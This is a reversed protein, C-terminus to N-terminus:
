TQGKSGKGSEDKRSKEPPPAKLSISDRITDLDLINAKLLIRLAKLFEEIKRPDNPM